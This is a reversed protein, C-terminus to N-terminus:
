MCNGSYKFIKNNSNGTLFILVEKVTKGLQILMDLDM